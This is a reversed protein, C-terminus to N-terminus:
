LLDALNPVVGSVAAAPLLRRLRPLERGRDLPANGWAVNGFPRRGSCSSVLLENYVLPKPNGRIRNRGYLLSSVSFM